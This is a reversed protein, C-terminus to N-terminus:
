NVVTFKIVSLIDGEADIYLKEFVKQRNKIFVEKLREPTPFDAWAKFDDQLTEVKKCFFGCPVLKCERFHKYHFTTHPHKLNYQTFMEVKIPISM